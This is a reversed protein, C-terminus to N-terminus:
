VFSAQGPRFHLLGQVIEQLAKSLKESKDAILTNAATEEMYAHQAIEMQLAHVHEGPRGYHRTIYGGVFRGNVVFSYGSSEMTREVRRELEPACSKGNATGLNMVPLQGEFLRPVKSRISHCDYLIAFGHISRVREIERLLADHYPRWYQRLRRATEEDDPEEGQHYIPSGDFLVEPCLGTGSQGPYLDTDDPPRNLDVVFRSYNAQLITCDLDDAFEYLKPVHWDTDPLSAAAPTMRSELRPPLALGSHPMSLIVPSLGRGLRFIEM